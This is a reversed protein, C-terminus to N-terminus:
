ELSQIKHSKEDYTSKASKSKQLMCECEGIHFHTGFAAKRVINLFIKLLKLINLIESRIVRVM